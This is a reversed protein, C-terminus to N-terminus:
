LYDEKKTRKLADLLAENPRKPHNCAFMFTDFMDDKLIISKHEFNKAKVKM